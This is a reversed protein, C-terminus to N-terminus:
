NTINNYTFIGNIKDFEISKAFSDFCIFKNGFNIFNQSNYFMIDKTINNHNIEIVSEIKNDDDNIEVKYVSSLYNNNFKGGVFIINKNDINIIGMNCCNNLNSINYFYWKLNKDDLDFVEYGHIYKRLNFNFGGVCYIYRDNICFLSANARYENMKNKLKIWKNNDDNLDLYECDNNYEGSCVFVKNKSKIYIINHSARKMNMKKEEKIILNDDKYILKYCNQCILNNREEYGGTILFSNNLNVGKSRKFPFGINDDKETYIQYSSISNTINNYLFIINKNNENLQFYFFFLSNDKLHFNDNIKREEENKLSQKEIYDELTKQIKIEKKQKIELTNNEIENKNNINNKNLIVKSLEENVKLKKVVIKETEMLKKENNNEVKKGLFKNENSFNIIKNVENNDDIIKIQSEKQKILNENFEFINSNSTLNDKENLIILKYEENNDFKHNKIKQNLQIKHNNNNEKINNNNILNFQNSYEIKNEIENENLNKHFFKSYIDNIKKKYEINCNNIEEFFKQFQVMPRNDYLNSYNSIYEDEYVTFNFCSNKNINMLNINNLSDIVQLLFNTFQVENKDNKLNEKLNKFGLKIINDIEKNGNYRENIKREFINLDRSYDTEQIIKNSIEEKLKNVLKELDNFSFSCFKHEIHDPFCNSCIVKKCKKCFFYNDSHNPTSDYIIECLNREM